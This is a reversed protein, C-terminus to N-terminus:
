PVCIPAITSPDLCIPGVSGVVQDVCHDPFTWCASAPAAPLLVFAGVASAAVALSAIRKTLSIV